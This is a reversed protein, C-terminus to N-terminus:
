RVANLLGSSTDGSLPRGYRTALEALRHVTPRWGHDRLWDATDVRLGGRWLPTYRAMAGDTRARTVLASPSGTGHELAIQSGPASLNTVTTLLREATDHDLYILLGEVLWATPLAPDLTPITWDDRLDAAVTTRLCRPANGALVNEKFALMEPLDVESLRVGDPWPLRYARTDLGAALLVVQRIGTACAALLYEDYYRTRLIAHTAFAAGVTRQEATPRRAEPYADPAAAVFAAAFPDDFLRDPRTSERARVRAVALATLGVGSPPEPATMPGAYHM